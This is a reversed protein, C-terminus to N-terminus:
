LVISSLSTKINDLKAEIRDLRSDFHLIGALFLFALCLGLTVTQTPHWFTGYIAIAIGGAIVLWAAKDITSKM